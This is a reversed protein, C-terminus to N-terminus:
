SLVNRIEYGSDPATVREDLVESPRIYEVRPDDEQWTDVQLARAVFTQITSPMELSAPGVTVIRPSDGWVDAFANTAGEANTVRRARPVVVTLGWLKAPLILDGAELIQQGNVTYKLIDRIDQQIAVANAVKYPLILHTGEDGIADYIAEKGLKIDTEITATDQDWNVSPAAGLNLQGGNAVKQLRTAVRVERQLALQDQVANTKGQRLGIIDDTNDMERRSVSVKLAYEETLYPETSLTPAIEKTEARDPVLADVDAAFFDRPEWVRYKGSEKQVPIRPAIQDAILGKPRYQRGLNTLVPDVLQGSRVTIDFAERGM